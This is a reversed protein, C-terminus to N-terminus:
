GSIQAAEWEGYTKGDLARRWATPGATQRGYVVAGAASPSTFAYNKVFVCHDGDPKLVGSQVLTEHLAAYSSASVEKGEWSLRAQSGALVIFEGDTIQATAKLGHKPSDIVFTDAADTVSPTAASAPKTPRTQEVFIDIRIAPLVLFLFDLFVEMDSAAAESLRSKPPTNGNDLTVVGVKKAEAVLRSELYKVHAKNLSNGSASVLVASTWWEKGSHNKLREGLEEAEGIYAHPKGDKEGTLLYVGTRGLEARKIAEPLRTRPVHLVHGTWNFVQATIMGDPRGDIFYLELSRPQRPNSM